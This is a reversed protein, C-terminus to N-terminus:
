LLFEILQERSNNKVSYKRHFARHSEMSLTIGNDIAFRLEPHSSFNLIHHAVLKGGKVGTKQDTFNDRAFVSHRWLQIEISTRIRHNESSIGGKWANSQKGKKAQSLKERHEKSFFHKVCRLKQKHEETFKKGKQFGQTSKRKYIGSPM